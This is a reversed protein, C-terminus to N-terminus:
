CFGDQRLVPFVSGLSISGQCSGIAAGHRGGPWFGVQPDVKATAAYAHQWSILLCVVLLIPPLRM